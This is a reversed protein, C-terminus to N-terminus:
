DAIAYVLTVTIRVDIEGAAIPVDSAMMAERRMQIPAPGGPSGESITQVPGLSVGAADALLAAKAGADQVAKVRAADEIPRPNSLTFSLGNMQNAGSGVVDDLVAGLGDLERVRISLMNSAVYGVVRPPADRESHDWRPSLSLSATQIDRGEIGANSLTVLVESVAASTQDMAEKARPAERTVGLTLVAMDPEAAVRGEGTVIIERLTDEALAAVPLCFFSTWFVFSLLRM